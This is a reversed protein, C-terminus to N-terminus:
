RSVAASPEPKRSLTAVLSAHADYEIDRVRWGAPTGVMVYTLRRVNSSPFRVEVPV